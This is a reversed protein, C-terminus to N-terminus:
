DMAADAEFPRALSAGSWLSLTKHLVPTLGFMVLLIVFVGAVWVLDNNLQSAIPPKADFSVTMATDPKVQISRTFHLTKGRIPLSLFLPVGAVSAAQQTEIMRTIIADLNESDAKSLTNRLQRAQGRDFHDGLGAQVQDDIKGSQQHLRIRNGVLGVLAQEQALRHLQVRADENLAADSLSYHWASELAQRAARQKGQSALVDGQLQLDLAKALNSTNVRLVEREYTGTTFYTIPSHHTTQEDHTLTGGFNSYTYHAPAYLTWRVNHLPLDFKPGELTSSQWSGTGKGPVLYVMDIEVPLDGAADPRLPILYTPPGGSRGKSPATSPVTSRGDVILSWVSADEPLSMSLHRMGGVSLEIRVRSMAAGTETLVTTIETHRVSAALLHASDHRTIELKVKYDAGTSRYCLAADSLEGAGFRQPITRAEAPQLENGKDVGILEVRQGAMVVVYGRQREADPVVVPALYATGTERDFKTDYHVTLQYPRAFQKGSLEIRYLDSPMDPTGDPQSIRAIQSGTIVIGSAGDPVRLEFVKAGAHRITHRLYIRHRIVGEAVEAVHLSEVDIAPDILETSLQLSWAPRLLRFVLTGPSHVGLEAPDFESVASRGTVAVRVGQEASVVLQGTHKLSGPAEIRPPTITSPLGSISRSLALNLDVRGITKARFHVTAIRRGDELSEDWHSVQAATLTDIDYGEPIVLNANFRGSKTIILSLTGNYVLREESITFSANEVTRLEPTVEHATVMILDDPGARYAARVPGAIQNAIQDILVAAERTFDDVNILQPHKGVTVYVSSSQVLGLTGRQRKADLVELRALSTEAPLDTIPQQTVVQLDYMGTAPRSLRAEILRTAPDFRWTGIDKGDVSTVSVGAPTRLVVHDLQGQAIELRVLTHREIIASDFRVLGTTAAYFVTPELERQRARPRWIFRAPQGHGVIASLTTSDGAEKKTLRVASPSVIEHGIEPITLTVRNTLSAPIPMQFSRTQNDDAHPLPLLFRITISYKGSRKVVAEYGIDTQRIDVNGTAPGASLLIAGRNLIAFRLPKETDVALRLEGAMADDEVGLDLELREITPSGDAVTATAGSACGGSLVVTAALVLSAVAGVRGTHLRKMKMRLLRWLCTTMLLAPVGWTLIHGLAQSLAPLHCAGYLLAAAGGALMAPRRRNRLAGAFILLLGIIPVIITSTVGAYQRWVPVVRLTLMAEDGDGTPMVQNFHLVTLNDYVALQNGFAPANAASIGLVVAAILCVVVFANPLTGRSVAGVILLVILGGVLLVVPLSNSRSGAFSWGWCNGVSNLVRSVKGHHEARPEPEALGSTYHVAWENPVSVHWSNFTSAVSGMPAQLKLEGKYGLAPHEMGYVLEITLPANPDRPRSIPILLEGTTKNHSAIIRTRQPIPMGDEDVRPNGQDDLEVGEILRTSWVRAGQPLHVAMFQSSSNKVKFTVTTSSEAEGNDQTAIETHIQALEVIAPLLRGHEYANVTVLLPSPDSTYKYSALLPAAVLLSYNAPLEEREIEILSSDDTPKASVTVDLHSTIGLYGSQSEVNECRVGGVLVPQGDDPRQAYAVGLNYDGIVRRQLKVTWRSPDDPDQLATRVDRGVFEVDRLVPDVRFSLEDIPSGTIYYSMVVNGYSMGEALSVLHFSEVRVSAPKRTPNFGVSWDADRFRYAYRADKIRTPVSATYVERLMDTDADITVLEVGQETSLVLFGRQGRAGTVSLGTINHDAELPSRGLELRLGMVVRGIVPETLTIRVKDPADDRQEMARYDDVQAGTVSVLTFGSPLDIEIERLPADRIDLEVQADIRLEDQGVHVAIRHTADYSPVVHNLALLLEYSGAAFSYFFAKGSPIPRPHSNDLIIRPMAQADIQSLGSSKEVVLAIASNTGIVLRGGARIGGIPQVVPIRLMAPFPGTATDGVVQLGYRGTQPRSLTVYLRDAENEEGPEIRWDRISQGSVQTVSLAKPVSLELKDMEGQAVDYILLTDLRLAGPQVTAITNSEAAFVLEAELAQVRPKWRVVFRRDSGQVGTIRLRGDVVRRKVRVAGVLEVELDSRDCVLELERVRSAPMDFSAERWLGDRVPKSRAALSFEVTRTGKSNFAIRYAKDEADYSIRYGSGPTHIEDLVVEGQAIDVWQARNKTTLDFRVDFTLNEGDIRATVSAENTEWDAAATATPTFGVLLVLWAVLSALHMRKM